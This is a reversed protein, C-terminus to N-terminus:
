IEFEGSRVLNVLVDTVEPDLLGGAAEKELITLAEELPMRARYPRDSFLADFIDAVAMIRAELSVEAGFLGDPYGQGNLKEHHHRVVDIAGRLCNLPGCIKEGILPHKKVRDFEEPSLRDPKNLISEPIGIKGIDHIIGATRIVDLRNEDLGMRKGIMVAYRSVREAHGETYKDKAEIARALSFLVTEVNDMEEQFDRELLRYLREVRRNAEDLETVRSELEDVLSRKELGNEIIKLLEWNNWPKELYYYLDIENIARIANDKDAYGTLLILTIRRDHERIKKLLDLGNIGPMLFDSIVLDVRNEKVIGLAEEPSNCQFVSYPSAVELFTAITETIMAEDDVVLINKGLKKGGTLGGSATVDM